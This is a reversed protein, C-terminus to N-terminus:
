ALAQLPAGGQLEVRLAKVWATLDDAPAEIRRGGIDWHRCAKGTLLELLIVATGSTAVLWRGDASFAIGQGRPPISLQVPPRAERRLTDWLIVSGDAGWSALTRGDSSATLAITQHGEPAKLRGPPASGTLQWLLITKGETVALVHSGGLLAVLR